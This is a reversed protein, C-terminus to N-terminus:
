GPPELPLLTDRRELELLYRKRPIGGGFGTMSGDAGVVRHCPIVIAIPNHGVAQGVAQALSRDGLEIAVDGYTVLEGYPIRLLRQWVERHLAPGTPALPLAFDTREGAFYDALQGRADVFLPDVPDAPGGLWDPRHRGGAFHLGVLRDGDAVLTLPGVPSAVEVHRHGAQAAPATPATPAPDPM